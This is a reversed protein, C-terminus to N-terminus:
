SNGGESGSSATEFSCSSSIRLFRELPPCPSVSRAERTSVVMVTADSDLDLPLLARVSSQVRSYWIRLPRRICTAARDKARWEAQFDMAMEPSTVEVDVSQSVM